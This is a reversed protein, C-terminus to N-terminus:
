KNNAVHEKLLSIINEVRKEYIINTCSQRNGSEIADIIAQWKDGVCILAKPRILKRDTLAIVTAIELMTGWSGDFVIYASGIEVLSKLRELYDKTKIIETVFPNAQKDKFDKTIVGIRRTDFASAGKHVAEMIGGYGGTAIDFGSQALAFGLETAYVYSKDDYRLTGSGFITIINM